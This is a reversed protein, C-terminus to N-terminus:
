RADGQELIVAAPRPMAISHGLAPPFMDYPSDSGM